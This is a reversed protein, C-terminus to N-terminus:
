SSLCPHHFLKLATVELTGRGLNSFKLWSGIQNYSNIGRMRMCDAEYLNQVM